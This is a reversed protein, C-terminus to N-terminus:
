DDTHLDRPSRLVKLRDFKLANKLIIPLTAIYMRPSFGAALRLLFENLAQRRQVSCNWENRQINQQVWYYAAEVRGAMAETLRDVGDNKDQAMKSGYILLLFIKAALSEIRHHLNGQMTSGGAHMRYQTLTEAIYLIPGIQEVATWLLWDAPYFVGARFGGAKIYATKRVMMSSLVIRNDFSLPQPNESANAQRVKELFGFAAYDAPPELGFLNFDTYCGAAEPRQVLASVQKELKLPHWLDDADCFALLSGKSHYSGINRAVSVGCNEQAILTIADGFQGLTALSDDTSGDDVVIIEKHSYTQNLCSEVTQSVLASNNYNPIICSVLPNKEQTENKLDIRM